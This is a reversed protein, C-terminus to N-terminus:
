WYGNAVIGSLASRSRKLLLFKIGDESERFIHAEIMTSVINM